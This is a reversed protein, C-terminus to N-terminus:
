TGASPVYVNVTLFTISNHTILRMWFHYQYLWKINIFHMTSRCVCTLSQASSHVGTKPVLMALIHCLAPAWPGQTDAQVQACEWRM